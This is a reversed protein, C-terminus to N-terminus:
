LLVYSCVSTRKPSFPNIFSAISWMIVIGALCLLRQRNSLEMETSTRTYDTGAAFKSNFAFL